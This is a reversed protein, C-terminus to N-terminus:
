SNAVSDARKQLAEAELFASPVSPQESAPKTAPAVLNAFRTEVFFFGEGV